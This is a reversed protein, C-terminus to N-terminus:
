LLEEKGLLHRYENRATELCKYKQTKAAQESKLGLHAAIWEMSRKELYFFQLIERCKDALKELAKEALHSRLAHGPEEDGTGLNETDMGSLPTHSDKRLKRLCLHRATQYIFGNLSGTLTFQQAELKGYLVILTEQFLDEADDRTGGLQRVLQYVKPWQGYLKGFAKERKGERFLRIIHEDTMNETTKYLYM